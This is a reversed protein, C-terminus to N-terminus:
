TAPTPAAAPSEARLLALTEQFLPSQRAIVILANTASGYDGQALRHCVDLLEDQRDTGRTINIAKTSM